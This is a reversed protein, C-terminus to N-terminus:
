SPHHLPQMPIVPTHLPANLCLINKNPWQPLSLLTLDTSMGALAEQIKSCRQTLSILVMINLCDSGSLSKVAWELLYVVDIKVRGSSSPQVLIVAKM